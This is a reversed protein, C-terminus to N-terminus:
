EIPTFTDRSSLELIDGVDLYCTYSEEGWNGGGLITNVKLRGSSTRVVFNSDGTVIYRGAPIDSGVTYYGATLVKPAEGTKKIANKLNDLESTKTQIDNDLATVTESKTAIDKDLQAIEANKTEKNAKYENLQNLIEEQNKLELKVSDLEETLKILETNKKSMEEIAIDDLQLKRGVGYSITCAFLLIFVFMYITFENIRLTQKAKLLFEKM